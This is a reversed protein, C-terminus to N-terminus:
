FSVDSCLDLYELRKKETLGPATGGRWLAVLDASTAIGLLEPLVSGALINAIESAAAKLESENTITWWHDRPPVMYEGIRREYHRQDKELISTDELKYVLSSFLGINVTIKLLSSTSSMSSQLNVYYTLDGNSYIFNNGSRRFGHPKLIESM